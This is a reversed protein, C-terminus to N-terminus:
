VVAVKRRVKPSHTGERSLEAGTMLRLTPHPRGWEDQGCVEGTLIQKDGEAQANPDDRTASPALHVSNGKRWM